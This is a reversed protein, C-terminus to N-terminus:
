TLPRGNRTWGTLITKSNREIGQKMRWERGIDRVTLPTNPETYAGVHWDNILPSKMKSLKRCLREHNNSATLFGQIPQMWETRILSPMGSYMPRHNKRGEYYYGNWTFARYQAGSAYVQCVKKNSWGKPLRLVALRKLADFAELMKSLRLEALLEWDDELNFFFPTRVRSWCWKLALTFNGTTPTRVLMEDFIGLAADIVDRQTYEPDGVPDINLILRCPYDQFLKEKFSKLTREVIAPRITATTTIDIM